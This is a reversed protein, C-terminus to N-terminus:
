WIGLAILYPASTSLSQITVRTLISLLPFAVPTVKTCSPLSYKWFAFTTIIEAKQMSVGLSKSFEAQVCNGSPSALLLPM